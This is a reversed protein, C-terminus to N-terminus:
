FINFGMKILLALLSGSFGIIIGLGIIMYINLMRSLEYVALEKAILYKKFSNPDNDKLSNLENVVKELHPKIVRLAILSYLGLVLHALTPILTSFFMLTIWLVEKDFPNNLLQMKYAEIPILLKEDTILSNAYELTYFLTFALGFLLVIAIISDIIIDFFVKLKSDTKLIKQAFLRSYYMSIYDFISNIFPLILFFLLYLITTSNIRNLIFVIITGIIVIKMIGIEEKSLIVGVVTIMLIVEAVVGVKLGMTIVKGILVIGIIGIAVIILIQWNNLRSFYPIKKRLFTQIEQLRTFLLFSTIIEFFIFFSIILRNEDEILTLNGIDGSAGLLWSIYFFFFSYIFSYTFHKNWTSFSIRKIEELYKDLFNLTKQLYTKYLFTDPKIDKQIHDAYSSTSEITTLLNEVIFQQKDKLENGIFWLFTVFM